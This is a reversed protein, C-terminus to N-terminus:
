DVECPEVIKMKVAEVRLQCLYTNGGVFKIKRELYGDKKLNGM